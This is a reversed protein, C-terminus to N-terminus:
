RVIQVQPLSPATIKTSGDTNVGVISATLRILGYVGFMVALAIIGWILSSSDTDKGNAKAWIFKIVLYLFTVVGLGYLFYTAMQLLVNATGFAEVFPQGYKLQQAFAAVPLGAVAGIALTKQLAKM